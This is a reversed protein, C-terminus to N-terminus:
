SSAFVIGFRSVITLLRSSLYLLLASEIGAWVKSIIFFIFLSPDLIYIETVVRRILPLTSFLDSWEKRFDLPSEQQLLVGWVGLQITSLNAETSDPKENHDRKIM